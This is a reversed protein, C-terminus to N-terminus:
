IYSFFDISVTIESLVIFPTTTLLQQSKDRSDPVFNHPPLMWVRGCAYRAKDENFILRVALQKIPEM